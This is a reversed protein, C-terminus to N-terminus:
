ARGTDGDTDKSPLDPAPAAATDGSPPLAPDEESLHRALWAAGLILLLWVGFVYLLIVPLGFVLRISNFALILPSMFLFAGALPLLAALDRHKASTAM